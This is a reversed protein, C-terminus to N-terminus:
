KFDRAILVGQPLVVYLHGDVGYEVHQVQPLWYQGPSDLFDRPTASAKEGTLPTVKGDAAIRYLRGQDGGMPRESFVLEDGVVTFAVRAPPELMVIRNIGFDVRSGDSLRHWSYSATSRQALVHIRGQHDADLALISGTIGLAAADLTTVRNSTDITRIRGDDILYFMGAADVELDHPAVFGAAYGQGDVRAPPKGPAGAKLDDYGAMNATFQFLGPVYYNWGGQATYRAVEAEDLAFGRGSSAAAYALVFSQGNKRAFGSPYRAMVPHSMASFYDNLRVATEVVGGSVKRIVPQLANPVFGPVAYTVNTCREGTEALYVGDQYVTARLLHSYEAAASTGNSSSCNSFDVTAKGTFVELKLAAPQVVPPPGVPDVPGAGGGNGAGGGGSGGGCGAALLAVALAAFVMSHRVM